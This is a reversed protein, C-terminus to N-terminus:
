SSTEARLDHAEFWFATIPSSNPYAEIAVPDDFLVLYGPKPTRSTVYGPKVKEVVGTHGHMLRGANGSYDAANRISVVVRQGEKFTTM